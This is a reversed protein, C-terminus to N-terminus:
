SVGQKSETIELFIKSLFDLTIPKSIFGSVEPYEKAQEMDAIHVSSSLMYIKKLKLSSEAKGRLENLVEWGTMQPMNIDLLILDIVSNEALSKSIYELGLVPDTFMKSEVPYDSKKLLHGLLFNNIDDDDIVLLNIM